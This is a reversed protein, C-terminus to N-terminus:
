DDGKGDDGSATTDGSPRARVRKHTPAEAPEDIGRTREMLRPEAGPSTVIWSGGERVRITLGEDNTASM